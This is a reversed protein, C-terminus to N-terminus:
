PHGGFLVLLPPELTARIETAAAEAGRTDLMHILMEHREVDIEIVTTGPTLSVMATLLAVGQPHMPTFRMSRLGSPPLPRLRLGHLVIIRLTQVGSFVMAKVFRLLLQLAAVLRRGVSPADSPKM